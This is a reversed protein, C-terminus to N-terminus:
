KKTNEKALINKGNLISLIHDQIRANGALRNHDGCILKNETTGIISPVGANRSETDAALSRKTVIGDGPALMLKKLDDDSVRSGDSRTFGKPRFLTKWKKTKQDEYLVVSDLATGCDSGLVYFSVDGTKGDAAALAEHLRKSRDLAAAFYAKANTRESSDFKSVFDKDDIVSWGYKSWTKPDYINLSVPELKDNFARITDPAPLLQYVAPITFATFKSSDQVFPLDIRINGISLGNVLANLSNASGENPTGLLIVKDFHKAGAWTPEAKGDGDRLDADGYMAAYRCIIGGMSHAVVDFKLQPKGLKLKLQEIRRILQRANAVNDLRWDYAFIYLSDHSGEPSPTEWPEEHYGGRTVMVKIFGGYVDYLPLGGIKITRLADTAVIDDHAKTPDAGIPLRLDESRSRFTRFWIRQRSDKHRLESGALGPVLIVPNRGQAFLSFSLASLLICFRLSFSLLNKLKGQKM